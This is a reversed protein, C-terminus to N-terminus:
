MLILFFVSELICLLRLFSHINWIHVCFHISFHLCCHLPISISLSLFLLSFFRVSNSDMCRTDNRRIGLIRVDHCIRFCFLFGHSKYHLLKRDICSLVCCSGSRCLFFFRFKQKYFVIQVDQKCRFRAWEVCLFLYVSIQIHPYINPAHSKKGDECEM